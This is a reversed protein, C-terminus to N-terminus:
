QPWPLKVFRVDAQPRVGGRHTSSTRNDAWTYYVHANDTFPIDSDGMHPAYTGFFHPCESGDNRHRPPYALDFTGANTMATGTSAPPFQVTSIPFNSAFANTSLLALRAFVGFTQILSNSAPDNGRSSLAPGALEV